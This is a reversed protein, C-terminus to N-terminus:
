HDVLKSGKLVLDLGWFVRMFRVNAHSSALTSTKWVIKTRPNTLQLINLWKPLM